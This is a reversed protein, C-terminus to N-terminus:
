LCATVHICTHNSSADHASTNIFVDTYTWDKMQVSISTQKAKQYVNINCEAYEFGRQYRWTGTTHILHLHNVHMHYFM